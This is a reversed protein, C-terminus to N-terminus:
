HVSCARWTGIKRSIAEAVHGLHTHSACKIVFLISYIERECMNHAGIACALRTRTLRLM